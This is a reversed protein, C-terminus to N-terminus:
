LEIIPPCTMARGNVRLRYDTRGYAVDTGFLLGFKGFQVVVENHM